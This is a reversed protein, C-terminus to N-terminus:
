PVTPSAFRNIEQSALDLSNVICESLTNRCHVIRKSRPRHDDPFRDTHGEIYELIQLISRFSPWSIAWLPNSRILPHLKAVWPGPPWYPNWRDLRKNSQQPSRRLVPVAPPSASSLWGQLSFCFIFGWHHTRSCNSIIVCIAKITDVLEGAQLDAQLSSDEVAVHIDEPLALDCQVDKAVTSASTM